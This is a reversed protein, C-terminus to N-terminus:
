VLQQAAFHRAPQIETKRNKHANQLTADSFPSPFALVGFFSQESLTGKSMNWFSYINLNLSPFM